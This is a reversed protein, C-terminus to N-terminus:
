FIPLQFFSVFIVLTYNQAIVLTYNQASDHTNLVSRETTGGDMLLPRTRKRIEM